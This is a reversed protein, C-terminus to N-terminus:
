STVLLRVFYTIEFVLNSSIYRDQIDWGTLSTVQTLASRWRQVKKMNRRYAKEHEGFFKLYKGTQRRVESPDVHYFVPLVTQEGAPKLCESIEVLEDLCWTSSAYNKSFIVVLIKSHKIAKLTEISITQGRELECDDKFTIIGKQHLATYLHSVFNKRTDEGRFNLFVDYKWKLISSPSPLALLFSSYAM